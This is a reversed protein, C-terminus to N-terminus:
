WADSVLVFNTFKQYNTATLDLELYYQAGSTSKIKVWGGIIM